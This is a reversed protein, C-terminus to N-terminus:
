GKAVLEGRCFEGHLVVTDQGVSYHSGCTSEEERKKKRQEKRGEAGGKEVWEGGWKGGVRM